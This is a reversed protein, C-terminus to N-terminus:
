WNALVEAISLLPKLLVHKIRSKLLGGNNNIILYYRVMHTPLVTPQMAYIPMMFKEGKEFKVFDDRDVKNYHYRRILCMLCSLHFRKLNRQCLKTCPLSWNM